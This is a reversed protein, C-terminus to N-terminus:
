ILISRDSLYIPIASVKILSYAYIPPDALYVAPLCVRIDVPVANAYNLANDTKVTKLTVKVSRYRECQKCHKGENKHQGDKSPISSSLVKRSSAEESDRYLAASVALMM